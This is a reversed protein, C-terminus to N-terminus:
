FETPLTPESHATEDTDQVHQPIVATAQQLLAEMRTLLASTQESDNEAAAHELDRGIQTLGPLGFSSGTGKINHAIRWITEFTRMELANRCTGLDSQRAVVYGPFLDRLEEPVSIASDAAPAPKTTAGAHCLRSVEEALVRPNIPKTLVANCGAERAQHTIAPATDGTLVAIPLHLRDPRGRVQLIVEVGSMDPLHMDTIVLDVRCRDLMALGEAGSSASVVRYGRPELTYSSIAQADESDDIVLITAGAAGWSSVLHLLEASRIPKTVYADMGALRCLEAHEESAHATLAVIPVRPEHAEQEARRISRAADLGSFDPLQLDMLIIDYRSRSAMTVAEAGTVALDVSHGARTLTLTAVQQSAPFDEVLLVRTCSAPPATAHKDIVPVPVGAPAVTGCPIEVEFTSGRGETSTFGISGNMMSILARSLHLGLGTGGVLRHNGAQHFRDFIQAQESEPIGIGTDTITVHLNWHGDAQPVASASLHISGRPTFKAANSAVNFLVQRIRTADGRLHGPVGPEVVCSVTVGPTVRSRALDATSEVIARPEFVGDDLTFHGQEIKSIDLLDTVLARLHEANSHVTRIMKQQPPTLPTDQLLEAMGLMAHLPTRIEHSMAALFNSKADSAEEALVKAAEVTRNSEEMRALALNRTTVDNLVGALGPVGAGILPGVVVEFQRLNGDATLMGVEFPATQPREGAILRGRAEERDPEHIFDLLPRGLSEGSEFGLANHWAANLFRLRGDADLEFIIERITDVLNRFRQESHAHAARATRAEKLSHELHAQTSTLHERERMLDRSVRQLTEMSSRTTQLLLLFDGTVDHAPFDRLNLGLKLLTQLDGVIPTLLLVLKGSYESVGGQLHLGTAGGLTIVEGRLNSLSEWTLAQSYPRILTFHEELPAGPRVNPMVRALSPGLGFVTCTRTLRIHFPFADRLFQNAAM